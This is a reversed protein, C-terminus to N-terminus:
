SSILSSALCVSRFTEMDRLAESVDDQSSLPNCGTIAVDAGGDILTKVLVATKAEVHLDMGIRFGSLPKEKTFEERIKALVKMHREAWEIKGYGSEIDSSELSGFESM